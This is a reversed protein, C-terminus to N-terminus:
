IARLMIEGLAKGFAEPDPLQGTEALYAQGLLLEAYAALRADTSDAAFAAKLKALIPHNPNLELVPKVPPAAQGMQELLRQMRPTLDHEDAVLCSPSTTLRTSLRVEKVDDQLHVRLCNLLDGLERRKDEIEAAAAKREDESGPQVDSRFLV